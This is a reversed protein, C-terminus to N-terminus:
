RGLARWNEVRGALAQPHSEGLRSVMYEPELVTLKRCRQM